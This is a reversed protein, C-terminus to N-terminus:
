CRRHTLSSVFQATMVGKAECLPPYDRVIGQNVLNNLQPTHPTLPCRNSSPPGVYQLSTSRSGSVISIDEASRCRALSRILRRSYLSPPHSGTCICVEDPLDAEDSTVVLRLPVHPADAVKAYHSCEGDEVVHGRGTSGFTEIAFYEGEEM